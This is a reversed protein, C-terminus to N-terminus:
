ARARLLRARPMRGQCVYSGADQRAGFAHDILQDLPIGVDAAATDLLFVLRPLGASTATDFELETYSMEPHERVASDMDSFLVGLKALDERNKHYM